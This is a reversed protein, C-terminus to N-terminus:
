KTGRVLRAGYVLAAVIGAILIWEWWRIVHKTRVVEKAKQQETILAARLSDVVARYRDTSDIVVVKETDHYHHIEKITDGVNNLTITHTETQRVTDVRVQYSVERLTDTSHTRITDHVTVYETVTKQKTTCSCLACVAIFLMLFIATIVVFGTLKRGEM